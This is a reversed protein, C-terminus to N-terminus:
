KNYLITNSILSTRYHCTYIYRTIKCEISLYEFLVCTWINMNENYVHALYLSYPPLAVAMWVCLMVYYVSLQWSWCHRDIAHLWVYFCNLHVNKLVLFSHHKNTDKKVSQSYDPLKDVGAHGTALRRWRRQCVIERSILMVFPLQLFVCRTFINNRKSLSGHLLCTLTYYLTDRVYIMYTWVLMLTTRSLCVSTRKGSKYIGYM